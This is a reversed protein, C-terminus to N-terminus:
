LQQIDDPLDDIGAFEKVVVSKIQKKVEPNIYPYTMEKEGGISECDDEILIDPMLREAVDKYEENQQRFHLNQADPFNYKKLVTKIDELQQGAKRSTLYYITAGQQKWKNLKEVAKGQPIYNAFDYVFGHEKQAAAKKSLEVLEERRLGIGAKFVLVTGDTFILIKM